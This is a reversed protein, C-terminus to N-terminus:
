ARRRKPPRRLEAIVEAATFRGAATLCELRQRIERATKSLELSILDHGAGDASMEILQLDLAPNWGRMARKALHAALPANVPADALVEAPAAEDSSPTALLPSPPTPAPSVVPAPAPPESCTLGTTDPQSRGADAVAAPAGTEAPAADKMATATEAGVPIVVERTAAPEPCPRAPSLAGPMVLDLGIGDARVRLSARWDPQIQLLEIAATTLARTARLQALSGDACLTAVAADRRSGVPDPEPM